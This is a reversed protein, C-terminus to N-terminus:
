TLINEDRIPYASDNSAFSQVGKVAYGEVLVRTDSLEPHQNIKQNYLDYIARMATVNFVQLNATGIIHTKNPECLSGNVAGGIQNNIVNYPVSLESVSM